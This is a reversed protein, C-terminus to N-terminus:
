RSTMLKRLIDLNEESFDLRCMRLAESMADIWAAQEANPAITKREETLAEPKKDTEHNEARVVALAELARTYSVYRENLSMGGTLAVVYEFELGKAKEVSLVSLRADDAEFWAIDRNELLAKLQHLTDTQGFRLLVAARAEPKEQKKQVIWAIAQKLDWEHVHEGSIGIPTVEAGFETNCFETIQVTNRYNENLQYIHGATIEGIEDWGSIGKYSYVAQNVDGYLNFVCREGVISRWLRYESISIDQAEDIHLFHDRVSPQEFYLTCLLLTYVLKHRYNEKSYTEGYQRYTAMLRSVIVQEYLAEFSLQKAKELCNRVEGQENETLATQKLRALEDSLRNCISALDQAKKKTEELEKRKEPVHRLREAHPEIKKADERGDLVAEAMDLMSLRERFQKQKGSLEADRQQAELLAKEAEEIARELQEVQQKETSIFVSILKESAESYRKKELEVAARARNRKGFNYVPTEQFLKEAEDLPKRIQTLQARVAALGAFRNDALETEREDHNGALFSQIAEFQSRKESGFRRAYEIDQRLVQMEDANAKQRILAEKLESHTKEREERIDKRAQEGLLRLEETKRAIEAQKKRLEYDAQELRTQKEKRQQADACIQKDLAMLGDTLLAATKQKHVSLDPIPMHNREFLRLIGNIEATKQNWFAHYLAITEDVYAPAYIETLLAENLAKESVTEARVDIKGSYRHILEVDYAEVSYRQIEDLGLERSLDDIHRDFFPNPTIIKTGAFSMDRDNFKLYSLRHLMIMTKGSGACGQVVFSEEKPRRILLNQNAQISRVIDTLRHQRRKDRLVTLLFPDILEGELTVRSGDYQTVCQILKADQIDLNRKLMLAYHTGDADLEKQNMAMLGGVESRWDTIWECGDISLGKKGIYYTHVKGDATQGTEELDLRGYYPSPQYTRLQIANKEAKYKEEILEQKRRIDESDLVFFEDIERSLREWRSECKEAENEIKRETDALRQEEEEFGADKEKQEDM